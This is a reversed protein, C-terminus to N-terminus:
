DSKTIVHSRHSYLAAAQGSRLESPVRVLMDQEKRDGRNEEAEHLLHENIPADFIEAKLEVDGVAQGKMNYVSVKSM